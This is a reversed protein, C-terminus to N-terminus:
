KGNGGPAAGSGARGAPPGPPQNADLKKDKEANKDKGEASSPPSLLVKDGESLGSLVEVRTDNMRGIKIETPQPLGGVLRYCRTKEQETFVAAVPVSLVNALRDLEIEVQATMGPKLDPVKTDLHVDVKFIKVGPNLWRNQSDPLVGVKSIKGTLPTDPRADLRVHAKL